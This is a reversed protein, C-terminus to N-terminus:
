ALEQALACIYAVQRAIAPPAPLQDNLVRQIYDATAAADTATPLGSVTAATGAQKEQLIRRQGRVFGDIQLTRRPDAVSEGETGKSLMGSMGMREFTETMVGAYEPHTHSSVVLQVCSGPQMLKVVSHGPNRLGITQRTDLLRKMGPCLVATDVHVLEGNAIPRPADLAPIGLAALVTQSSVRGAETPCGHLLVPLGARAVLLALLPTLVPLRRAGNYSPLVVLPQRTAPFRALRAQTADLFGAMEDPTIGKFRMAVCFAGIELDSVSGDLVQAFLDAAQERPLARAGYKGRGIGRLYHSIGM